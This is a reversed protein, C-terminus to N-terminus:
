MQKQCKMEEQKFIDKRTAIYQEYTQILKEVITNEDLRECDVNKCVEQPLQKIVQIHKKNKKKPNDNQRTTGNVLYVNQKEEKQILYVHHKDHGAKVRALHM